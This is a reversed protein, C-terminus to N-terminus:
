GNGTDQRDLTLYDERLIYVVMWVAAGSFGVAVAVQSFFPVPLVFLIGSGFLLLIGVLFAALCRQFRRANTIVVRENNRIADAYGRLLSDKYDQETVKFKAMYDGLGPSPGYQFSSSLYTIVAYVLSTFLAAVSLALLVFFLGTEASVSVEETGVAFSVASLVLGALIGVLRAVYAAKDDVGNLTSIQTQVMQEYRRLLDEEPDFDSPLDFDDDDSPM